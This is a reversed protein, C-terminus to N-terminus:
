GEWGMERALKECAECWTPRKPFHEGFSVRWGGLPIATAMTRAGCLGRIYGSGKASSLHYHWMGAVGESIVLFVTM